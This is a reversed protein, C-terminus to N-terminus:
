EGVSVEVQAAQILKGKYNIQPKIIRTIISEDPALSDDSVFTAQLNMGENYPQNLLKVLEYKNANLSQELKRVSASLQKHGKISDDMRSLNTNIRVIEDAVRKAFSHDTEGSSSNGLNQETEKGLWDALKQSDQIQKELIEKQKNAIKKTDNNWKRSLVLYVVLILIISFGIILLGYQQKQSLQKNVSVINDANKSSSNEIKTVNINADELDNRLGDTELIIEDFRKNNDIKNDDLNKSLLNIISDLMLLRSDVSSIIKNISDSFIKNETSVRNIDVQFAQISSTLEKLKENQSKINNEFSSVKTEIHNIKIELISDNNIEQPFFTISILLCITTLIKNMILM